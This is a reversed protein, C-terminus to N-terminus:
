DRIEYSHNQRSQNSRYYCRNAPLCIIAPRVDTKLCLLFYIEMIQCSIIYLFFYIEMIRQKEPPVAAECGRL